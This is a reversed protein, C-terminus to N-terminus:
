WNEDFYQGSVPSISWICSINVLYLFYQRFHVSINFLIYLLTKVLFAKIM